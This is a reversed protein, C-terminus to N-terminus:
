HIPYRVLTFALRTRSSDIGPFSIINSYNIAEIVPPVLAMLIFSRFRFAAFSVRSFARSASFPSRASPTSYQRRVISTSPILRNCALVLCFMFRSEKQWSVASWANTWRVPGEWFQGCELCHIFRAGAERSQQDRKKIPGQCFLFSYSLLLFVFQPDLTPFASHVTDDAM